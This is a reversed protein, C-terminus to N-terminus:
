EVKEGYADGFMNAKFSEYGQPAKYKAGIKEIKMLAVDGDRTSDLSGRDLSFSNYREKTVLFYYNRREHIETAVGYKAFHEQVPVLDRSQFYAQIVIVNNGQPTVPVVESEVPRVPKVPVEVVESDSDTERSTLENDNKTTEEGEGFLKKRLDDKPDPDVVEDSESSLFPLTTDPFIQGLRVAGAFAVLFAVCLLGATLYSLSFELKQSFFGDSWRSRPEGSGPADVRQPLNRVKRRGSWRGRRVQSSRLGVIKGKGARKTQGKRIAEYLAMRKTERAM